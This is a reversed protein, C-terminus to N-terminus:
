FLNAKRWDNVNTPISPRFMSLKSIGQFFFTYANQNNTTATSTEIPFDTFFSLFFSLFFSFWPSLCVFFYYFFTFHSFSAFFLFIVFFFFFFFFFFYWRFLNEWWLNNQISSISISGGYSCNKKWMFPNKSAGWTYHNDDNSISATVRTWIRSSASQIECLM